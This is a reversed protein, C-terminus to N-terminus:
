NQGGLGRISCRHFRDLLDQMEARQPENMYDLKVMAPHRQPRVESVAPEDDEEDDVKRIMQHPHHTEYTVPGM